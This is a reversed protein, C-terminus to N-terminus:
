GGKEEGKKHGTKFERKGGKQRKLGEIKLLRHIGYKQCIKKFEGRM